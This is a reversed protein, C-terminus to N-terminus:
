QCLGRCRPPPPPPPTYPNLDISGSASAGNYTATINVSINKTTGTYIDTVTFSGTTSGAPIAISAPMQLKSADSTSLTILAGGAPAPANLTVNATLSGGNFLGSDGGSLDLQIVPSATLAITTSASTGNFSATVTVNETVNQAVFTPGWTGTTSGAPVTISAPVAYHAPDSSTLTVVAGQSPAIGDLTITGGASISLVAQATKPPAYTYVDNPNIATTVGWMNVTVDVQGYSSAAPAIVCLSGACINQYPQAQVGGFYATGTSDIGTGNIVVVNGGALPGSAPSIGNVTPAAYTFTPENASAQLVNNVYIYV